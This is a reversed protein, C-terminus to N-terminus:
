DEIIGVVKYRGDMEVVSGFLKVTDRGGDPTEWVVWCDGHIRFTEYEAIGRRCETGIVQRPAGGADAAIRAADKVSSRDLNEWAFEASYNNRSAPFEPWLLETHERETVRLAHMAATDQAVVAAAFAETLADLSGAGDSLRPAGADGCGSAFAAAWLAVASAVFRLGDTRFEM